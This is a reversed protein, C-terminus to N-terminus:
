SPHLRRIQNIRAIARVAACHWFIFEFTQNTRNRGEPLLQIERRVDDMTIGSFNTEDLAVEMSNYFDTADTEWYTEQASVKNTVSTDTGVAAEHYYPIDNWQPVLRSTMERVVSATAKQSPPRWFTALVMEPTLMPLVVSPAVPPFQRRVRHHLFWYDLAYYGAMGDVLSELVGNKVIQAGRQRLDAPLIGRYQTFSNIFRRLPIAPDELEVDRINYYHARTFDGHSGSLAFPDAASKPRPVNSKILSSWHDGGFYSFWAEARALIPDAPQGPLQPDAADQRITGPNAMVEQWPYAVASREHLQRAIEGELSPPIYTQAHFRLRSEIAVAAVFRSDVGGSIKLSADDGLFPRVVDVLRKAALLPSELDRPHGKNERLLREVSHPRRIVLGRESISVISGPPALVVGQVFSTTDLGGGTVYYGDWFEDDQVADFELAIAAALVNNSLVTGNAGDVYYVKGIGMLDNTAVVTDRSANHHFYSLPPALKELESSDNRLNRVFERLKRGSKDALLETTLIPHASASLSSNDKYWWDRGYPDPQGPIFFSVTADGDLRIISDLSVDLLSRLRQHVADAQRASRFQMGLYIGTPAHARQNHLPLGNTQAGVEVAKM